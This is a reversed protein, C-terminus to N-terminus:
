GLLIAKLMRAARPHLAKDAQMATRYASAAAVLRAADAGALRQVISAEEAETLHGGVGLEIVFALLREDAAGPAQDPAQAQEETGQPWEYTWILTKYMANTSKKAGESAEGGYRAGRGYKDGNGTHSRVLPNTSQTNNVCFQNPCHDMDGCGVTTESNRFVLALGDNFFVPDRDHTKYASLTGM